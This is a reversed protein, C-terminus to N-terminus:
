AQGLASAPRERFWLRDAVARRKAWEMTSEPGLL